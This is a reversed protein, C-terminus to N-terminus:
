NSAPIFRSVVLNARLRLPHGEADKESPHEIWSQPEGAADTPFNKMGKLKFGSGRHEAVWDAYVEYTAGATSEVLDALEQPDGTIKARIGLGRLYDGVQSVQSGDRDFPKASISTYRITYGENTPGVITPDVQIKLYGKQTAGFAEAPFSEPARVTYVGAKPLGRAPGRQDKYNDLDVPEATVLTGLASIDAM